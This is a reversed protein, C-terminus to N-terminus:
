LTSEKKKFSLSSYELFLPVALSLIYLFALSLWFPGIKILNMGKRLLVIILAVVFVGYLRTTSFLYLLNTSFALFRVSNKHSFIM